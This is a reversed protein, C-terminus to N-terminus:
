NKGVMKEISDSVSGTRKARRLAAAVKPPDLMGKSRSFVEDMEELTLSTSEPFTFYVTPVICANIAAYVIWYRYGINEFGIPTVLIVVFNAMWSTATSIGAIAARFELPAVETAYLNTLSLFGLAFFPTYLFLFFTAAYLASTNEPLSTAGALVAMCITMVTASLLMLPRRGFRDVAVVTGTGGVILLSQMAIALGRAKVAGFGLREEYIVTAYAVTLSCGCMQQFLQGLVASLARNFIRQEGMRFLNRLSGAKRDNAALSQKMIAIDAEISEDEIPLDSLVALVERAEEIRGKKVLWRPSEPLTRVFGLVAILFILQFAFPFRWSVTSGTIFFFAFDLLLALVIGVGLFIGEANVFAGRHEAGAIESQWVPITATHGGSGFGLVLRAVIFQALTTSSAMLIAGVIAIITAYFITMRRGLMDGVKMCVLAGLASGLVFLAIVTGQVTSNHSQQAGTTNIIDLAPFQEVFSPLTLVNGAVGQNYGYCIYAPGVILGLAANTVRSGRLGWYKQM